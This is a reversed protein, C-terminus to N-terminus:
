LNCFATRLEQSLPSIHRLAIVSYALSFYSAAKKPMKNKYYTLIMIVSSGTTSDSCTPACLPTTPTCPSPSPWWPSAPCWCPWVQVTCYLVTCYLVTCYLVTCYLVTCYLVYLVINNQLQRNISDLSLIGPSCLQMISVLWNIHTYLTCQVHLKIAKRPDKTDM